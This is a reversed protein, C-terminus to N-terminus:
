TANEQNFDQASQNQTIATIDQEKLNIGFQHLTKIIVNNFESHHLDIDQFDGASPNFIESGDVIVYTWNAIRHRRLYTVTVDEVITSPAIRIKSGLKLGIPYSATPSTDKFNKLLKFEKSNKCFEVENDDQSFVSEIHRLDAPLDFYPDSFTLEVDEILFHNIRERILDPINATGTDILGRNQRNIMRNLEFPYEEIIEHVSNNIALRFDTPKVNGRIDSNALMLVTKYVLDISIM